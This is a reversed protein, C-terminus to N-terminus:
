HNQKTTQRCDDAKAYKNRNQGTEECKGCVHCFNRWWMDYLNMYAEYM